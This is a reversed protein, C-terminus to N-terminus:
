RIPKFVLLLAPLLLLDGFRSAGELFKALDGEIPYRRALVEFPEASEAAACCGLM